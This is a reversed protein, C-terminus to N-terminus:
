LSQQNCQATQNSGETSIEKDQLRFLEAVIEDCNM